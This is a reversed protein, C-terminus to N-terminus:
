SPLGGVMALDLSQVEGKLIADEVAGWVWERPERKGLRRAKMPGGEYTKESVGVEADVDVGASVNEAVTRLVNSIM